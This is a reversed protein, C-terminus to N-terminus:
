RAGGPFALVKGIYKGGLVELAAKLAKDTAGITALRISGEDNSCGLIKAAEKRRASWARPWRFRIEAIVEARNM